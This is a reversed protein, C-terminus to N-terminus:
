TTESNATHETAAHGRLGHSRSCTILCADCFGPATGLVAPANKPLASEAEARVRCAHKDRVRGCRHLACVCAARMAKSTRACAACMCWVRAVANPMRAPASPPPRTSRDHRRARTCAARDGRRRSRVNWRDHADSLGASPRISGGFSFSSVSARGGVRGGARGDERGSM